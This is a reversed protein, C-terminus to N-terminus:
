SVILNAIQADLLSGRLKTLRGLEQVIALEREHLRLLALAENEIAALRQKARWRESTTLKRCKVSGEICPGFLTITM